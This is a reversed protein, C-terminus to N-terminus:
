AAARRAVRLENLWDTDIRNRVLTDIVRASSGLDAWGSTADRLVLLRDPRQGLVERSFDVTRVGRYAAELDGIALKDSVHRVVDPIQSNLLDLFARGTGIMVFTNWLCKADLLTEAQSLSPKEWFRNVRLLQAAPLDEIVQGPEIWGYEVESNHAEAGLLIISESYTGAFGLARKIALRFAGENSYYHDSPFLAVIADPQYKLIRLIGATIALGTGRSQPQVLVRTNDSANLEDSYFREHARTVVFLKQDHRFLPHIRDCTQRLLTKGGFLRCFQKPRVDGAISRTLDQLRAGDGGALILAWSHRNSPSSIKCTSHTQDLYVEWLVM